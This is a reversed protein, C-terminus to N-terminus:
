WTIQSTGLFEDIDYNINYVGREACFDEIGKSVGTYLDLENYGRLTYLEYISSENELLYEIDSMNQINDLEYSSHEKFTKM